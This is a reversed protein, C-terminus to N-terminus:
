VFEGDGAGFTIEGENSLERAKAIMITQAALADARRLKGRLNVEDRVGDAARTSMAAFIPERADEDLGALADILAEGDVDRLLRGMDMTGLELVMAFTFMEAEIARALDADRETIAPLVRQGISGAANNILEAAERPGGMSLAARGFRSTIQAGLLEDLMEIAGASVPGLRAIREVVQPQTSQPLTALLEAAPDPELMLLLVAIAQPHEDEILSLLVAPALWRAIELTATPAEPAIRQMLSDAKMDGVARQMTARVQAYRPQAGNALVLTDNQAQAVFGAIASAIRDPGVEGLAVMAKGVIQLERPELSALLSSADDDGLLMVIVAAHEAETLALEM